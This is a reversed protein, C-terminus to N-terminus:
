PLDEIFAAIERELRTDGTGLHMALTYHNHDPVILARPMTGHRALRDAMLGLFETQFRAPDYQASAM